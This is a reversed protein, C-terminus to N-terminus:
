RKDHCKKCLDYDCEECGYKLKGEPIKKKCNDCNYNFEGTEIIVKKLGHGGPCNQTSSKMMAGTMRAVKKADQHKKKVIEFPSLFKFPREQGNVQNTIGRSSNVNTHDECTKISNQSTMEEVTVKKETIKEPNLIKQDQMDVRKESGNPSFATSGNPISSIKNEEQDKYYYFINQVSNVKPSKDQGQSIQINETKKVICCNLKSCFGIKGDDNGM